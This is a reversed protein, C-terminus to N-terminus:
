VDRCDTYSKSFVLDIYPIHEPQKIKKRRKSAASPHLPHLLLSDRICMEQLQLTEAQVHEVRAKSTPRFRETTNAVQIMREFVPGELRLLISRRTQLWLRTPTCDSTTVLMRM